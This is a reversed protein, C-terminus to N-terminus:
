GLCGGTGCCAGLCIAVIVRERVQLITPFTCEWFLHGDGDKSVVASAARFRLMRQRGM